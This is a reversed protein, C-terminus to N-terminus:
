KVGVKVLLFEPAFINSLIYTGFLPSTATSTMQPFCSFVSPAPLNQRFFSSLLFIAGQVAAPVFRLLSHALSSRSRTNLPVLELQFLMSHPTGCPDTSAGIRNRTKVLLKSATTCSIVVVFSISSVVRPWTIWECATLSRCYYHRPLIVSHMDSHPIAKLTLLHSTM